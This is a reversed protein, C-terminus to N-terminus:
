RQKGRDAKQSGHWTLTLRQIVGELWKEAELHGRVTWPLGQCDLTRATAM